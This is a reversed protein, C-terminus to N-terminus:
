QVASMIKSVETFNEPTYPTCSDVYRYGLIVFFHHFDCKLSMSIEAQTGGICMFIEDFHRFDHTSHLSM